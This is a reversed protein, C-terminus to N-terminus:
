ADPYLYRMLEPRIFDNQRQKFDAPHAGAALFNNCETDDSQEMWDAVAHRISSFMRESSASRAARACIEIEQLGPVVKLAAENEINSQVFGAASPHTNFIRAIAEGVAADPRQNGDGEYLPAYLRM